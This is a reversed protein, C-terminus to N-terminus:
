AKTWCMGPRVANYFNTDGRKMCIVRGKYVNLYKPKISEVSTCGNNLEIQSCPRPLLDQTPVAKGDSWDCGAIIGPWYVSSFPEYGPQLNCPNIDTRVDVIYNKSALMDEFLIRCFPIDDASSHILTYSILSAAM